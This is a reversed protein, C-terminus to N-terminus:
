SHPTMANDVLDWIFRGSPRQQEEAIHAVLGAARAVVAFGRMIEPSVGIEGLLAAVAGTANITIPRGAAEDVADSLIQLAQIHSGSLDPEARALDLLKYARPDIPKHLHHGFGPLLSRDKKHRAVISRAEAVPDGAGHIDALLRSCNEMTGVFQSGVAMLGSSVAGQLNEPASMYVLRTAISSPTLGHEMLVILVADTIRLDVPRAPRNLIQMLMVETFSKKGLLDEVLNQQRYHLSTLTHSCLESVPRKESM